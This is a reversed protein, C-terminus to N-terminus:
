IRVRKDPCLQGDKICAEGAGIIRRLRDKVFGKRYRKLAQESDFYLVEKRVEPTLYFKEEIM